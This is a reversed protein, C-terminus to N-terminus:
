KNIQILLNRYAKLANQKDRNGLMREFEIINKCKDSCVYNFCRVGNYRLFRSRQHPVQIFDRVVGEMNCKSFNACKVIKLECQREHNKLTELTLVSDCGPYKCKIKLDGIM